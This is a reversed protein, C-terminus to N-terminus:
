CQKYTLPHDKTYWIATGTHRYKPFFWVDKPPVVAVVDQKNVVRYHTDVLSNFYNAMYKNGWRPSGFTYLYVGHSKRNMNYGEHKAFRVVDLACFQALAAGLSHGTILIKKDKHQIMLHKLSSM